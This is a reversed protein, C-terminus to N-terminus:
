REHTLGETRSVTHVRGLELPVHQEHEHVLPRAHLKGGHDIELEVSQGRKIMATFEDHNAFHSEFDHRGFTMLHTSGNEVISQVVRNADLDVIEGDSRFGARLQVVGDHRFATVGTMEAVSVHQVGRDHEHERARPAPHQEFTTRFALMQPFDGHQKVALLLPNAADALDVFPPLTVIPGNAMNAYGDRNLENAGPTAGPTREIAVDKSLAGVDHKIRTLDQILRDPSVGLLSERDNSLGFEHSLNAVTSIVDTADRAIADRQQSPLNNIAALTADIGMAAVARVSPAMPGMGISQAVLLDDGRVYHKARVGEPMHHSAGNFTEVSIHPAIHETVWRASHHLEKYHHEVAELALQTVLAGRSFGVVHVDEGRDLTKIIEAALTREPPNQMGREHDFTEHAATVIDNGIGATGVYVLDVPQGIRAALMTGETRAKDLTTNIGNAFFVRTGLSFEPEGKGILKDDKPIVIHISGDKVYDDRGLSTSVRKTEDKISSERQLERNLQDLKQAVAQVRQLETEVFFADNNNLIM